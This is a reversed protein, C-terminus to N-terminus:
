DGEERLAHISITVNSARSPRSILRGGRPPRPNFDFNPLETFGNVVTARRASPTSQFTFDVTDTSPAFPDGEERLAHISIVLAAQLVVKLHRRGGRPPRPNFHETYITDTEFNFDGEERLAHISIRQHLQRLHIDVTARRASPTSQFLGKHVRDITAGLDGEERLAHISIPQAPCEQRRPVTARRASPTSQFVKYGSLAATTRTARRASPTSQFKPAQARNTGSRPRGGRPPRPNFDHQLIRRFHQVPDGEERLAHISIQARRSTMLIDYTARGVSPTLQFAGRVSVNCPM